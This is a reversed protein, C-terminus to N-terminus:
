TFKLLFLLSNRGVGGFIGAGNALQFKLDPCMQRVVTKAFTARSACFPVLNRAFYLLFNVFQRM